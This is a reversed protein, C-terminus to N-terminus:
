DEENEEESLSFAYNELIEIVDYVESETVHSKNILETLLGSDVLDRIADAINLFDRETDTPVSYNQM